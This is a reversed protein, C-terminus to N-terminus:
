GNRILNKPNEGVWQNAMTWDKLKITHEESYTVAYEKNPDRSRSWNFVVENCVSLMEHMTLRERLTNEKKFYDWICKYTADAHIPESEAALRM